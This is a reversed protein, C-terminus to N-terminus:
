KGIIASVATILASLGALFVFIRYPNWLAM